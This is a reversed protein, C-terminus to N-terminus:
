INTGHVYFVLILEKRTMCYLYLKSFWRSWSRKHWAICTYSLLDGRDVGKTDHLVPIVYFIVAILKKRTLCYLYLTSSRWSWSREHWAICTYSLLDDRDVGKTDHVVHQIIYFMVLLEKWTMFYSIIQKHLHSQPKMVERYIQRSHSISFFLALLEKQIM